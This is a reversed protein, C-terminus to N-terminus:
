FPFDSSDPLQPLGDDYDTPRIGPTESQTQVATLAFAAPEAPCVVLCAGCGICYPEDFAPITLGQAAANKFPTMRLARTPCVEACAGCAQGKVVVVCLNLSLNTLAVRTRRKEEVGLFRIAGTPCVRGCEVCSYQCYDDVYKLTPRLSGVAKIVKV